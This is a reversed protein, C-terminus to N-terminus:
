KQPEQPTSGSPPAKSIGDQLQVYFGVTGPNGVPQPTTTGNGIFKALDVKITGKPKNIGKAM